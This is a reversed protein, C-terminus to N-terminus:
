QSNAIKRVEGVPYGIAVLWRGIALKGGAAGCGAGFLGALLSKGAEGRAIKRRKQRWDGPSWQWEAAQESPTAM